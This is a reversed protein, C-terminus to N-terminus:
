FRKCGGRRRRKRRHGPICFALWTIAGSLGKMRPKLARWADDDHALLAQGNRVSILCWTIAADDSRRRDWLYGIMAPVLAIDLKAMAGVADILRRAGVAQM